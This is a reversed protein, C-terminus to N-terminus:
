NIAFNVLQVPTEMDRSDNKSALKLDRRRPSCTIGVNYKRHTYDTYRPYLYSCIWDDVFAIMWLDLRKCTWVGANNIWTVVYRIKLVAYKYVASDM